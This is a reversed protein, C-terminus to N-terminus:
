KTSFCFTLCVISFKFILRSETSLLYAGAILILILLLVGAGLYKKWASDEEKIKKTKMTNGCAVFEVGLLGLADVRVAIKRHKNELM